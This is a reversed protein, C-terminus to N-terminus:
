RMFDKRSWIYSGFYCCVDSVQILVVFDSISPLREWLLVLIKYINWILFRTAFDMASIVTRNVQPQCIEDRDHFSPPLFTVSM